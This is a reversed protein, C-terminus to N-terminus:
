YEEAKTLCKKRTKRRGPTKIFFLHLDIVLNSFLLRGQAMEAATCSGAPM